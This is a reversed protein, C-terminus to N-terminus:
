GQLPQRMVAALAEAEMRSALARGADHKKGDKTYVHVLHTVATGQQPGVASEIRDIESMQLVQARGTGFLGSQLSVTGRGIEIRAAGFWGDLVGYFLLLDFFGFVIPFIVPAESRALFVVIATWILFIGTIMLAQGPRRCMPFLVTVGGTTQSVVLKADRLTQASDQKVEYRSMASEDMKFDPSSEPTKFVPIDFSVLYDVGPIDAKVELRWTIRGQAADPTASPLDYPPAFLVPLAQLMPDTRMPEAKMVHQDQWLTRETTNRNKGSGTTVTESCTLTVIFGGPPQVTRPVSVVGAVRGGIVGPVAAMRFLSTGFRVWRIVSRILAVILGAGVLPFLFGIWAAKNGKAIEKPLFFLLPMSIANWLVAFLLMGLMQAKSGARIVGSAWEPNWHWPENPHESQSVRVTRIKRVGLLSGILLGFGVLGFAVAFVSQFAIMEWRLDRNLLAESPNRPNVYCPVPDNNRFHSELDRYVRQHWSGVNDATGSSIGVRTGSYNQGLFEYTYAAVVRYTTSDDGDHEELNVSTLHAPVEDWGQASTWTMLSRGMWFAALVGVAAFPIAFLALCGVGVRDKKELRAVM